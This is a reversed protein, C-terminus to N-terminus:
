TCKQPPPLRFFKSLFFLSHFFPLVIPNGHFALAMGLEFGALRELLFLKYPISVRFRMAGRWSILIGVTEM